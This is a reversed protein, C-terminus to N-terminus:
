PIPIRVVIEKKSVVVSASFKNVPTSNIANLLVQKDMMIGNIAKDLWEKYTLM